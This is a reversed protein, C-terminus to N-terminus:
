PRSLRDLAFAVTAATTLTGLIIPYATRFFGPGSREVKVTDGPHVLPNGQPDGQQLFMTLDVRKAQYGGAPDVHVWWIKKLNGDELPAGALMLVSLLPTPEKLLYTGPTRVSGLVQVGAEPTVHMPAEGPVIVTDGPKLTVATEQDATGSLFGTLDHVETTSRGGVVRVVRVAELRADPQPGGAERLVDWLTPPRSFTYSGPQVIAGMVYVRLANYEVITLTLDRISPNFLSLKQRLLKEAERLTLGGITVEGVLPVVATSDPRVTLQQDLSPQQLVNLQLVDGPGLRYASEASPLTTQALSGCASLLVFLLPLILKRNM